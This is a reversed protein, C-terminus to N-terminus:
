SGMYHLVQSAVATAIAIYVDTPNDIAISVSDGPNLPLGTSTTMGPGGVFIPVSNAMDAYLVLGSSLTASTTLATVTTTATQSNGVLASPLSM